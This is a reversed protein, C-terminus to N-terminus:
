LNMTFSQSFKIKYVTIGVTVIEVLIVIYKNHREKIRVGAEPPVSGSLKTCKTRYRQGARVVVLTERSLCPRVSNTEITVTFLFFLFVFCCLFKKSVGTTNRNSIKSKLNLVEGWWM